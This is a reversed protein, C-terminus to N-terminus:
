CRQESWDTIRVEVADADAYKKVARVSVIQQDAQYVIGELADQVTKLFNDLDPKVVPLLRSKPISKPRAVSVTLVIHLPIDRPIIQMAKQKMVELACHKVWSKYDRSPAADYTAVHNGRRAFRPRSQAVAKGPIYIEIQHM